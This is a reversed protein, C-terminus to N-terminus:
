SRKGMACTRLYPLSSSGLGVLWGLGLSVVDAPAIPTPLEGSLIFTAREQIEQLKAAEAAAKLEKQKEVWEQAAKEAADARKGADERTHALKIASDEVLKKVVQTRTHAHTYAHTHTHPAHYLAGGGPRGWDIPAMVGSM